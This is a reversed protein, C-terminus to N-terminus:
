TAAGSSQTRSSRAVATRRAFSPACARPRRHCTTGTRCTMAPSIPTACCRASATARGSAARTARLCCPWSGTQWRPVQAAAAPRAAVAAAAAPYAPRQAAAPRPTRLSTAWHQAHPAPERASSTACAGDHSRSSPASPTPMVSSPASSQIRRGKPCSCARLRCVNCRPVTTRCARARPALPMRLQHAACDHMITFNSFAHM